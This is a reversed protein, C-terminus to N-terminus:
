LLPLIEEGVRAFALAPPFSWRPFEASLDGGRLLGSAIQYAKSFAIYATRYAKWVAKSAAHVLPKTSRKPNEPRADPKQQIVTLAGLVKTGEADRRAEHEAEIELIMERVKRRREIPSLDEWCPLPELELAYETKFDKPDVPEPM